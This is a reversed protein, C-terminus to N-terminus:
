KSEDKKENEKVLKLETKVKKRSKTLAKFIRKFWIFPVLVKTKYIKPYNVKYFTM